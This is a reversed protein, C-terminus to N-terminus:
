TKTSLRMRLQFQFIEFGIKKYLEVAKNSSLVNLDAERCGKASAWQLARNVLATAIGRRREQPVVYVVSIHFSNMHTFVDHRSIIKGELFGTTRSGSQALLYIRDDKQIFGTLEQRYWQWFTEDQNVEYGGVAEMDQLTARIFDIISNGDHENAHRIKIEM